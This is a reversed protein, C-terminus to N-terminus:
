VVPPEARRHATPELSKVQGPCEFSRHGFSRNKSKLILNLKAIAATRWNDKVSCRTSVGILKTVLVVDRPQNRLPTCFVSHPVIVTRLPVQIHEIEFM